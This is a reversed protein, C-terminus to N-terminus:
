IVSFDLKVQGLKGAEDTAYFRFYVCSGTVMIADNIAQMARQWREDDFNYRRLGLIRKTNVKGKSDVQFAGMILTKIKSDLGASWQVLCEDVIAKAIHLREDFGLIENVERVLEFRGDFSKLGVNGKEGGLIVNFNEASLDMFAQFDDTVATKFAQLKSSFEQARAVMDQVFQDRALDEEKISEIPVLHGVANRKYGEPINQMNRKGGYITSVAGMVAEINSEERGLESGTQGDIDGHVVRALESPACGIRAAVTTPGEALMAKRLLRCTRM